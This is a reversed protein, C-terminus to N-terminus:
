PINSVPYQAGSPMPAISSRIIAPPTSITCSRAFPITSSRTASNVRSNCGNDIAARTGKIMFSWGDRAATVSTSPIWTPTSSILTPDSFTRVVERLSCLPCPLPRVIQSKTRKEASRGLRVVHRYPQM